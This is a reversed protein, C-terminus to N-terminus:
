KVALNVNRFKELLRGAEKAAKEIEAPEVDRMHATKNRVQLVFSLDGKDASSLNAARSFQDILSRPDKSVRSEGIEDSLRAHMTEEIEMWRVILGARSGRVGRGLTTDRNIRTPRGLFRLIPKQLQLLGMAFITGMLMGSVAFSYNRFEVKQGWASASFIVAGVLFYTATLAWMFRMFRERDAGQEAPDAADRM